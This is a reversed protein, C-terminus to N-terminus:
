REGVQRQFKTSSGGHVVRLLAHRQLLLRVVLVNLRGDLEFLVLLVNAMAERGGLLAADDAANVSAEDDRNAGHVAHTQHVAGIHAGGVNSAHADLQRQGAEAIYTKKGSGWSWRSGESPRTLLELQGPRGGRLVNGVQNEEDGVDEELSWGRDENTLDTGAEVERGNGDEPAGHHDTHTEHLVKALEGAQADDKTQELSAEERAADVQQARPISSTLM